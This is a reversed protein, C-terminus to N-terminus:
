NNPAESRLQFLSDSRPRFLKCYRSLWRQVPIPIFQVFGEQDRDYRGVKEFGYAHLPNEWDTDDTAFVLLSEKPKQDVFRLLSAQDDFIRISLHPSKYFDAEVKCFHFPSAKVCLLTTKEDRSLRYISEMYRVARLRPVFTVYALICCNIVVLGALTWRVVPRFRIKSALDDIGYCVIVLFPYTMPFLFRLEKHAILLHAALFPVFIFVFVDCPKKLLGFVFFVLLFASIPFIAKTLFWTLYQWWPSVGFDAAAGGVLNVSFYNLPTLVWDGYFWHDILICLGIATLFSVALLGVSRWPLRQVVLLWLGLGAIAIGMQFRFFFSFGLLAGSALLRLRNSNTQQELSRLLLYVALLFTTSSLSESSFRANCFPLFWLFLSALVFFKKGFPTAFRDVLLLAMQCVVYWAALAALLRLGFAGFFPNVIGLSHLASLVCYAIWPQLAPRIQAPFEWALDAAPTAGMKYNCFELIQFHEDLHYFGDGFYAGLVYLILSGLFYKPYASTKRNQLFAFVRHSGLPFEFGTSFIIM